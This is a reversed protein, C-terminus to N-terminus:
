QVDGNLRKMAVEVGEDTGIIMWYLPQGEEHAEPLAATWGMLDLGQMILDLAMEEKANLKREM